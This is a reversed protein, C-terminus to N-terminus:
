ISEFDDKEDYVNKILSLISLAEEYTRAWIKYDEIIYLKRGDDDEENSDTNWM